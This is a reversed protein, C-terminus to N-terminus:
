NVSAAHSERSGTNALVACFGAIMQEKNIPQHRAIKVADNILQQSSAACIEETISQGYTQCAIPLDSSFLLSISEGLNAAEVTKTIIAADAGLKNRNENLATHMDAAYFRKDAM